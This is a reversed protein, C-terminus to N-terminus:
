TLDGDEPLAGKELSRTDPKIYGAAFALAAPVVLAVLGEVAAPVEAGFVYEALLWLVFATVAGAATSAKVKPSVKAAAM